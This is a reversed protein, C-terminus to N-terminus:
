SAPAAHRKKLAEKIEYWRAETLPYRLTLAISICSLLIPLGIEVFRLRFLTKPTQRKLDTTKQLLEDARRVVETPNEGIRSRNARLGEAESRIADTREILRAVHETQDPYKEIREAFHRRLKETNDIMREVQENLRAAGAPAVDKLLRKEAESKILAVNSRLTDVTVNQREDFGTFVLLAGMVFGALASGM